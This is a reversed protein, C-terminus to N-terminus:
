ACSGAAYLGPIPAGHTGIVRADADVKLGGLSHYFYKTKGVSLDFAAYPAKDLPQLWEPYKGFQPDEGKAAFMNYNNITAQLAGAPMELDREMEAATEWGDILEIDFFKALEPYAFTESDVILYAQQGPQEFIFAATRGHYSDEAVFRQGDRNVVIGKILQAPPYFTQYGGTAIVVGKAAHAVLDQGDRRFAAGIIRGSEDQILRTVRSDGSFRVGEEECRRLLVEMAKLGCNGAPGTVLHGRLAPRAIKRYPWVKENGTSYLGEGGSPCLHKDTYLVRAFPIGQAELWDFHEVNGDCFRRLIDKEPVDAIADLFAYLADPDDEVGLDRQLRTGGGLYIVGESLASTGGGATARELVLVDAGHSRAELAAAAGTIGFGIVLLDCNLTPDTSQM